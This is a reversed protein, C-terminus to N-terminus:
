PQHEDQFAYLSEVDPFAQTVTREERVSWPLGPQLLAAEVPVSDPIIPWLTRVIGASARWAFPSPRGPCM